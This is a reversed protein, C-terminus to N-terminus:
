ANGHGSEVRRMTEDMAGSLIKESVFEQGLASANVRMRRWTADDALVSALATELQARDYDVAVGAGAAEITAAIDPGRTIVCPVGLCMYLKPKGPDAYLINNDASQTWPAVAVACRAIIDLMKDEDDIFGHFIFRDVMGKDRVLRQLEDSYPGRGIIRVKLETFRRVLGPMADVLLQVGQTETITGVFGITWREAQVADPPRCLSARYCLPVTVQPYVGADLKGMRERAEAIRPTIHWVLDAHRACYNDMSRFVAVMARNVGFRPPPPYYDISYYVHRKVLGRRRLALGAYASFCSVGIFIDFPKRMLRTCRGIVRYYNIFAAVLRLTRIPERSKGLLVSGVPWSRIKQGERYEDCRAVNSAAFPSALGIVGLRPVRPRLYDEITETRSTLVQGSLLVDVPFLESM